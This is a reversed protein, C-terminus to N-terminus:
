RTREISAAPFSLILLLLVNLVAAAGSVTAGEVGVPRAALATEAVCILRVQFADVSL